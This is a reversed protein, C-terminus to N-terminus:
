KGGQVNWVWSEIIKCIFVQVAKDGKDMEKKGVGGVERVVVHKNGMDIVWNGNQETQENTKNKLHWM